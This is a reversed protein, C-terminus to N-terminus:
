SIKREETKTGRFWDIAPMPNKGAPQVTLLEIATDGALGLLVQKASLELRSTEIPISCSTADLLRIQQGQYEFWAMPEPNFALVKALAVNANDTPTIRADKREYKPAFTPEGVQKAFSAFGAVLRPLEQLALSVGLHSLRSLLRSSNEGPEITTEVVGVVDGTDLGQNIRFLTVGTSEDGALIASQVPSAGRWRPLVSYHLNYWGLELLEITSPKLLAGFAVVLALRAGSSAIRAEEAEGIRNIKLVPLGLEEAVQAVPSATLVRKRGVPADNRTVVLAIPQGALVLARLTDAANTPTGAFIIPEM